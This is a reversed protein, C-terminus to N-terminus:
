CMGLLLLDIRINLRNANRPLYTGGTVVVVVVAAGVVEVVAAGGGGVVVTAGGGVVVAAGTVQYQEVTYKSILSSYAFLRKM